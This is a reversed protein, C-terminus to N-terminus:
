KWWLDIEDDTQLGLPSVETHVTYDALQMEVGGGRRKQRCKLLWRLLNFFCWKFFFGSYYVEKNLRYRQKYMIHYLDWQLSVAAGQEAEATACQQIALAARGTPGRKNSLFVFYLPAGYIVMWLSIWHIFLYRPKRWSGNFHVMLFFSERQGEGWLQALFWTSQSSIAARGPVQFIYELASLFNM